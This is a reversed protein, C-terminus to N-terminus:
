LQVGERTVNEHFPTVEYRASNWEARCHVMPVIVTGTELELDYLADSIADDQNRTQKEETLVLVDWDSDPEADGRARSGYLIVEAGPSLALVTAKIRRLLTEKDVNPAM